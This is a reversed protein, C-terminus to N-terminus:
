KQIPVHVPLTGPAYFVLEIAHPDVQTKALDITIVQPVKENDACGMATSNVVLRVSCSIVGNRTLRNKDCFNEVALSAELKNCSDGLVTVYLLNDQTFASFQPGRLEMSDANAMLTFLSVLAGVLLRM